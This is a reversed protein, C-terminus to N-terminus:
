HVFCRDELGLMQTRNGTPGGWNHGHFGPDRQGYRNPFTRMPEDANTYSNTYSPKPYDPRHEPRGVRYMTVRVMGYCASSLGSNLSAPARGFGGAGGQSNGRVETM